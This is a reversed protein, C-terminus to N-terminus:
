VGTDGNFLRLSYDNQTVLLPRGVYWADEAYHDLENALWSEVLANWTAVGYPGLRHACLVRLSNVAAMAAAADGARASEVSQRGASVGATRVPGLAERAAADGIDVDLWQVDDHGARLVALVAEADGIRVAEALDAIAGAFRHVRCLVVISDGITADA